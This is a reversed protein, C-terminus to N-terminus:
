GNRRRTDVAANRVGVALADLDEATFNVAPRGGVEGSRGDTAAIGAIVAASCPWPTPTAVHGGCLGNPRPRHLRRLRDAGGPQAAVFAVAEALLDSGGRRREAMASLRVRM